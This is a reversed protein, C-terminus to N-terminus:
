KTGNLTLLGKCVASLTHAAFDIRFNTSTLSARVGGVCKVPEPMAYTDEALCILRQMFRIGRRWALEYATARPKDGQSFAIQLADALGELVCATHFSPGDTAYDVLFAGNVQLQHQLAWDAMEFVFPVSSSDGTTAHIARWGQIQWWVMGWPHLVEFRRRYWDLTAPLSKPLTESGEVAAIRGAMRLASGPFLDHDTNMRHGASIPSIVGDEHFLRDLSQRLSKLGQHSLLDSDKTRYVASVLAVDASIGDNAGPFVLRPREGSKSIAECLSRLGTTALVRLELASFVEAADMLAELALIARVSSGVTTSKNLIPQYAYHPLGSADLQGIIYRAIERSRSVEDDPPSEQREVFSCDLPKTKGGRGLWSKTAYTTWWCPQMSIRAKRLVSQAFYRKDWDYQIPIHALILASGKGDSAFLSDKGLRVKNAAVEANVKGLKESDYFLSLVMETEGPTLSAKKAAYREDGWARRAAECLMEDLTGRFATWCGIMGHHYFSVAVGLIPINEDAHFPPLSEGNINVRVWDRARNIAAAAFEDPPEQTLRSVGFAPWSCGTEISKSVEHRFLVFPEFQALKANRFRAHRLQEIESTFFQTNPLGGGHRNPNFLSRAVIGYRSFDLDRPGIEHQRGFITVAVKLRDLGHRILTKESLRLVMATATVIDQATSHETNDTRYFGNRAVRYNTVRDRFSVMVGGGASLEGSVEKPAIPIKGTQFFSQSVWRALDAPSLGEPAVEVLDPELVGVHGTGRNPEPQLDKWIDFIAEVRYGLARAWEAGGQYPFNVVTLAGEVAFGESELANCAHKLSNGSCMCDDVVVVSERADAVGEVLRRTGHKEREARVCLGTYRGAGMAVLSGILPAGTMGISAVVKSRFTGLKELLARSLLVAGEPSLSVAWQYYIWSMPRGSYDAISYGDASQLIAKERLLERLRNLSDRSINPSTM